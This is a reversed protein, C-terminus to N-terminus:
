WRRVAVVFDMVAPLRDFHINGDIDACPDGPVLMVAASGAGRKDVSGLIGGLVRERGIEMLPGRMWPLSWVIRRDTVTLRIFPARLVAILFGPHKRLLLLIVGIVLSALITTSIISFTYDGVSIPAPWWIAWLLVILTFSQLGAFGVLVFTGSPLARLGPRARYQEQEAITDLRRLYPTPLNATAPVIEM